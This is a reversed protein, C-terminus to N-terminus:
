VPVQGSGGCETCQMQGGNCTPNDCPRYEDDTGAFENGNSILGSGNCRYCPIHGSGGCRPCERTQPESPQWSSSSSSSVQEDDGGGSDSGGGGGSGSASNAAGGIILLVVVGGGIWWWLHSSGGGKKACGSDNTLWQGITDASATVSAVQTGLTDAGAGTAVERTFNAWNLFGLVYDPPASSALKQLYAADPAVSPAAAGPNANYQDIGPQTNHSVWSQLQGASSCFAASATQSAAGAGPANALVTGIICSVLVGAGAALRLASALRGGNVGVTDSAEGMAGRGTGTGTWGQQLPLTSLPVAAM